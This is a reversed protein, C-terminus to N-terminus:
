VRGFADDELGVSDVIKILEIVRAFRAPILVTGRAHPLSRRAEFADPSATLRSGLKPKLAKEADAFKADAYRLFLLGLVPRSHESPKLGSNARLPDVVSWLRREIDAIDGAM